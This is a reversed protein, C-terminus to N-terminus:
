KKGPKGFRNEEGKLLRRINSRHTVLILIGLALAMVRLEVPVPQHLLLHRGFLLLPLLIGATISAISVIRTSLVVILWVAFTVLTPWAALGILVGFATGVGKGGRFGAFVTWVHGLVAAAGALIQVLYPSLPLADVRIQSIWLVSALGKGVDILVVFLAPKWGLVRFVNTAGANKSGLNRIDQKILMRGAIIATPISGALYSLLLILFLSSM